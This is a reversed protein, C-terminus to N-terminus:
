EFFGPYRDRLVEQMVFVQQLHHAMATRAGEVDGQAIGDIITGHECVIRGPRSSLPLVLHRLRDMQYKQNGMSRWVNPYGAFEAITQHFQEDLVYFQPIGDDDVCGKQRRLLDNLVDIQDSDRRKALEEVLAVEIARRVFYVERVVDMRIPSVRTGSQPFIEVLGVDGLRIIAERVPSRSTGFRTALDVISLVEGPKLRLSVVDDLIREFIQLTASRTRDIEGRPPLASLAGPPGGVASSSNGTTRQIAM